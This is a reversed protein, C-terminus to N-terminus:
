IVSDLSFLDKSYHFDEIWLSSKDPEVPEPPCSGGGGARGSAVARSFFSSFFSPAGKKGWTGARTNNERERETRASEM